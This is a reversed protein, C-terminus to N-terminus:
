PGGIDVNYAEYVLDAGAHRHRALAVMVDLVESRIEPPDPDDLRARCADIQESLTVHENRLRDVRSSLRPCDGMVEALLGDSAEVEEVHAEFAVRLDALASRLADSWSPDGSAGAASVELASMAHKLDVRRVRAAELAPGEEPGVGEDSMDSM